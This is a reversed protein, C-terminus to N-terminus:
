NTGSLAAAQIFAKFSDYSNPNIIVKGNVFLTPTGSVGLSDGEERDRQVRAKVSASDADKKYTSMDLGIRGAYDEFITTATDSKEWAAQNTFLMRYMEWFKGQLGAAEAAQSALYANKHPMPYLPFHRYVFRVTTSAEDLLKEVLPYFSACAPCQFDSYEIITVPANEPGLVHDAATVPAPSGLTPGAKEKNMAVSLGWVIAALIILFIVWFIIRKINM